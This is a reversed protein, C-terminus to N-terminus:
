RMRLIAKIILVHVRIGWFWIARSRHLIDYALSPNYNSQLELRGMKYLMRAYKRRVWNILDPRENIAWELTKDMIAIKAADMLATNNHLQDPHLRYMITPEPIAIFAYQRAVRLYFDWDSAGKISEDFMGCEEVVSKRAMVTSPTTIFCGGIMKKLPDRVYRRVRRQKSIPQLSSDVATYHCFVLGAEPNEELAKVQLALKDPLWVDDQDLFAVYKGRAVKLGTNRTAAAAGFRKEHCILRASKPLQYRSVVEDGSCDDVVIIEYDKFTQNCVSRVAENLYDPMGYAAIIVSVLPVADECRNNYQCAKKTISM